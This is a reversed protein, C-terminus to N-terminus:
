VHSSPPGSDLAGPQAASPETSETIDPHTFYVAPHGIQVLVEPQAFSPHRDEVTEPPTFYVAPHSIDVLGPPQAPSRETEGTTEPPTFYIEPHGATLIAGPEVTTAQFAQARAQELAQATVAFGLTAAIGIIRQIDGDAVRIEEQLSPNSEVVQLFRTAQVLPSQHATSLVFPGREAEDLHLLSAPQDATVAPAGLATQAALGCLPLAALVARRSAGIFRKM